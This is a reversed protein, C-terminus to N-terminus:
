RPTPQWLLRHGGRAGRSGVPRHHGYWYSNWSKAGELWLTWHGNTELIKRGVQVISKPTKQLLAPVDIKFAAVPRSSGRLWLQKIREYLHIQSTQTDTTKPQRVGSRRDSQDSPSWLDGGLDTSEMECVAVMKIYNNLLRLTSEDWSHLASTSMHGHNLATAHKVGPSRKPRVASSSAHGKVKNIGDGSACSRKM